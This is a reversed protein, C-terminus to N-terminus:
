KNGNCYSLLTQADTPTFCILKDTKYYPVFGSQNTSADSYVMGGGACANPGTKLPVCDKGSLGYGAPCPKPDVCGYKGYNDATQWQTTPQPTSIYVRVKPGNACAAVFSFAVGSIFGVLLMLSQKRPM